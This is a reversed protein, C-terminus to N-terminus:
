NGQGRKSDIAWIALAVLAGSVFGIVMGASPQELYIGCVAGALMGIAIFIGGGIKTRTKEPQTM